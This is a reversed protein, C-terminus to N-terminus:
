WTTQKTVIQWGARLAAIQDVIFHAFAASVRAPLDARRLYHLRNIVAHAAVFLCLLGAWGVGMMGALLLIVLGYPFLLTLLTARVERRAGYAMGLVFVNRIWRGQKRVYIRFTRPYETPMSSGPVFHIRFGARLAEKALTYDTGSPAATGFSGSAEVAARTLAANRGLLGDTFSPAQPETARQAAWQTLAFPDSLQSDLPRSTGTVVSAMGSQLWGLLENVVDDSPRCDIDTLYILKGESIAFSRRLAGQKGERPGQELVKVGSSLFQRAVEFTDDDGGACLVLEKHPYSLSHYCDIFDPIDTSANWAPVLFSLMPADEAPPWTSRPVAPYPRAIYWRGFQYGIFLVLLFAYVGIMSRQGTRQSGLGM